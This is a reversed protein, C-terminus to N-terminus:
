VIPWDASQDIYKSSQFQQTFVIPLKTDLFSFSLIFLCFMMKMKHVVGEVTCKQATAIATETPGEDVHLRIDRNPDYQTVIQDPPQLRKIGEVAAKGEETPPAWAM